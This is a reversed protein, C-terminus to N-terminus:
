IIFMVCCLVTIGLSPFCDMSAGHSVWRCRFLAGLGWCLPSPSGCPRQLSSSQDIPSPAPFLLCCLTTQLPRPVWEPGDTWCQPICSVGGQLVWQPALGPGWCSTPSFECCGARFWFTPPCFTHRFVHHSFIELHSSFELGCIWSDWHVRLVLVPLFSDRGGCM